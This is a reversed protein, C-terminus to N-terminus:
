EIGGGAYYEYFVEIEKETLEIGYYLQYEYQTEFLKNEYSCWSHRVWVFEDGKFGLAYGNCLEIETNNEYLLYSKPHCLGLNEESLLIMEYNNTNYLMGDKYLRDLFMTEYEDQDVSVGGFSLLKTKLQEITVEEEVCGVFSITLLLVAIIIIKVKM